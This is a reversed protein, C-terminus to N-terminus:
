VWVSTVDLFIKNEARKEVKKRNRMIGSNKRLDKKIEEDPFYIKM